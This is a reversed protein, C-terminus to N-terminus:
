DESAPAALSDNLRELAAPDNALREVVLDELRDLISARTGDFGKSAIAMYKDLRDRQSKMVEERAEGKPAPTYALFLKVLTDTLALEANLERRMALVEKLLEAFGVSLREEAQAQRAAAGTAIDDRVREEIRCYAAACRRMFAPWSEGSAEKFPALFELDEDKLEVNFTTRKTDAM